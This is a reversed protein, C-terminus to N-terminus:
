LKYMYLAIVTAIYSFVIFFIGAGFFWNKDNKCVGDDEKCDMGYSYLTSGPGAAAIINIILAYIYTRLTISGFTEYM